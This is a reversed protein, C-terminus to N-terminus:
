WSSPRALAQSARGAHFLSLKRIKYNSAINIYFL